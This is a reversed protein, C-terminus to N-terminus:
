YWNDESINAPLPKTTPSLPPSPPPPPITTSSTTTSSSSTTTTPHPDMLIQPMGDVNIDETDWMDKAQGFLWRAWHDENTAFDIGEYALAVPGLVRLLGKGGTAIRGRAGAPLRLWGARMAQYMKTAAADYDVGVLKLSQRLVGSVTRIALHAPMSMIDDVKNLTAM